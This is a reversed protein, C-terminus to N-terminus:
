HQVCGHTRTNWLPRGDAAYVVVNCDDQVALRAGDNGWTGSSWIPTGNATYQVLNGDTQMSVFSSSADVIGTAWLARGDHYLVFHGDNQHILVNRGDCSRVSENQHLRQGAGLVGCAPRAPQCGHTATSWLPRNQEDYIVVNCNTGLSDSQFLGHCTSGRECAGNSSTSEV